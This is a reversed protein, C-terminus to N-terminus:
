THLHSSVCGPPADTVLLALSPVADLVLSNRDHVALHRLYCLSDLSRCVVHYPVASEIRSVLIGIMYRYLSPKFTHRTSVKFVFRSLALPNSGQPLNRGGAGGGGTGRGGRIVSM